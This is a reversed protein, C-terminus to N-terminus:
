FRVILFPPILTTGPEHLPPLRRIMAGLQADAILLRGPDLLDELLMEGCLALAVTLELLELRRERLEDLVAGGVRGDHQAFDLPDLGESGFNAGRADDGQVAHVALQRCRLPGLELRQVLTALVIMPLRIGAAALLVVSEGVRECWMEPPM